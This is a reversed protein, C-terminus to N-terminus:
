ATTHQDKSNMTEILDLWRDANPKSVLGASASFSSGPVHGPKQITTTYNGVLPFKGAVRVYGGYAHNYVVPADSPSATAGACKSATTSLVTQSEIRLASNCIVQLRKKPPM